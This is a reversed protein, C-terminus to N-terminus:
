NTLFLTPRRRQKDVKKLMNAFIKYRSSGTAGISNCEAVLQALLKQMESAERKSFSVVVPWDDRGCGYHRVVKSSTAEMGFINVRGGVIKLGYQGM